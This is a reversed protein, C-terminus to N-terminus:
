FITLDSKNNNNNNFDCSVPKSVDIEDFNFIDNTCNKKLMHSTPKTAGRIWQFLPLYYTALLKKTFMEFCKGPNCQLNCVLRVAWPGMLLRGNHSHFRISPNSRLQNTCLAPIQFLLGVAEHLDWVYNCKQINM